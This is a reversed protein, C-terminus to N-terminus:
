AEEIVCTTAYWQMLPKDCVYTINIYIYVFLVFLLHYYYYYYLQKYNNLITYMVYTHTILLQHSSTGVGEQREGFAFSFGLSQCWGASFMSSSGGPRIANWLLCCGCKSTFNWSQGNLHRLSHHNICTPIHHKICSRLAEKETDWHKGKAQVDMNCMSLVQEMLIRRPRRAIPFCTCWAPARALLCAWGASAEMSAPPSLAGLSAPLMHEALFPLLMHKWPQLHNCYIWLKCSHDTDIIRLISQGPSIFPWAPQHARALWHM